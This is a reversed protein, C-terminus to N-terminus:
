KQQKAQQQEKQKSVRDQWVAAKKAKLKAEKKLSKKLLRPDDLVKEGGARALAAGWAERDLKSQRPPFPPHTPPHPTESPPHTPAETHRTHPPSCPPM